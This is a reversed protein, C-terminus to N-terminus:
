EGKEVPLREAKWEPFGEELRRARLGQARIQQIAEISFLCYPGRCYAIIEQNQPLTQLRQPLCEIPINVAGAIHGARFESAPRVDIVLAEGKKLLRVLEDRKVPTFGDRKDFNERVLSEVEAVQREAVHGMSALLKPIEHDSLSYFVQLGERRSQVLGGARLSQLHHSTNAVSMGSAQALADVSREGQALIELLELRGPSALAKAVRALHGYLAKKPHSTKIM